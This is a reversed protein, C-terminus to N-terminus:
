MTRSPGTIEHTDMYPDTTRHPETHGQTTRHPGTHHNSPGDKLEDKLLKRQFYFSTFRRSYFRRFKYKKVLKKNYQLPISQKNSIVNIFLIDFFHKMDISTESKHYSYGGDGM